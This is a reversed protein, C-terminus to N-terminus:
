AANLLALLGVAGDIGERGALYCVEQPVGGRFDCFEVVDFPVGGTQSPDRRPELQSGHLFM